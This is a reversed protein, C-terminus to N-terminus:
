FLRVRRPIGGDAEFSALFPERPDDILLLRNLASASPEVNRYFVPLGNHLVVRRERPGAWPAASSGDGSGPAQTNSGQGASMMVQFATRHHLFTLM